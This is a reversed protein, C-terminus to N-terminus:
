YDVAEIRDKPWVDFEIAWDFAKNDLQMMGLNHVINGSGIILVGRNQLEKLQKALNYHYSPLQVLDLSLQYFPIDAAPFM